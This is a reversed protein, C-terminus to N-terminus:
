STDSNTQPPESFQYLYARGQLGVRKIIGSKRLVYCARTATRRSISSLRSLDYSTFPQTPVNILKLLDYPQRLSIVNLFEVPLTDRKLFGVPVVYRKGRREKKWLQLEKLFLFDLELNKSPFVSTFYTLERFIKATQDKKRTYGSSVLIAQLPVIVKVEYGMSILAKVKQRIKYLGSIQIEIVTGGKLVDARYDGLKAETVGGDKSYFDQLYAHLTSKAKKRSRRVRM